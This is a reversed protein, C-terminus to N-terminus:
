TAVDLMRMGPKLGAKALAARRYYKDSGFAMVSSIWDYHRASENFLHAIYEPREKPDSYFETLPRHPRETGVSAEGAPMNISGTWTSIPRSSKAMMPRSCSPESEPAKM